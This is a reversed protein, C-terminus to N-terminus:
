TENLRGLINKLLHSIKGLPLVYQAGSNRLSDDTQHTPVGITIANYRRGVKMDEFGDGVFILLEPKFNDIILEFHYEKSKFKENTGYIRDFYKDMKKLKILFKLEDHPVGSSVFVVDFTKRCFKLLDLAGAIFKVKPYFVNKLKNSFEVEVKQYGGDTLKTGYKKAFFHDFKSRRSKGATKIWYKAAENVDTGWHKNLLMGFAKSKQEEMDIITGDLDFGIVKMNNKLNYRM